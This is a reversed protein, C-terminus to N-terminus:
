QEHAANSVENCGYRRDIQGQFTLRYYIEAIIHRPTPVYQVNDSTLKLDLYALFYTKSCIAVAIALAKVLTTKGTGEVGGIVLHGKPRVRFNSERIRVEEIVKILVQDIQPTQYIPPIFLCHNTDLAALESWVEQYVSLASILANKRSKRAEFSPYDISQYKARLALLKPITLKPLSLYEFKQLRLYLLETTSLEFLQSLNEEINSSPLAKELSSLNM